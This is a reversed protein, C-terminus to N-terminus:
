KPVDALVIDGTNVDIYYNFIFDDYCQLKIKIMWCTTDRFVGKEIIYQNVGLNDSDKREALKSIYDKYSENVTSLNSVAIKFAEDRSIKTTESIVGGKEDISLSVLTGDDKFIMGVGKGTYVKESTKERFSLTYRGQNEDSTEQISVLEYNSKDLRKMIDQASQKIDEKSKKDQKKYKEVNVLTIGVSGDKAVQYNYIGDTLEEYTEGAVDIDRLKKIEDSGKQSFKMILKKSDDEAAKSITNYATKSVCASLVMLMAASLICVAFVRKSKISKM